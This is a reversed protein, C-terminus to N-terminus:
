LFEVHNAMDKPELIEHILLLGNILEGISLPRTAFVIGSHPLAQAHLVLFDNDRTVIVWSKEAALALQEM